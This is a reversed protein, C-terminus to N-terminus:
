GGDGEEKHEVTRNFVLISDSFVTTLGEDDGGEPHNRRRRL